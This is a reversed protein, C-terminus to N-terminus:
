CRFPAQVLVVQADGGGPLVSSHVGGLEINGGHEEEGEPANKGTSASAAAASDPAEKDAL